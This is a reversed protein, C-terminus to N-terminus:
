VFASFCKLFIILPKFWLAIAALFGLFIPLHTNLFVLINLIVIGGSGLLLLGGLLCLRKEIKQKEM